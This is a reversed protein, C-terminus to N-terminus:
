FMPLIWFLIIFLISGIWALATMLRDSPRKGTVIEYSEIVARGGDLPYIPLINIFFLVISYIALGYLFDHAGETGGMGVRWAKAGCRWVGFHGAPAFCVVFQFDRWGVVCMITALCSSSALITTSEGACTQWREDM